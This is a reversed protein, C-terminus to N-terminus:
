AVHTPAPRSARFSDPADHSGGSGCPFDLADRSGGSGRPFDVADRDCGSRRFSPIQAFAHM